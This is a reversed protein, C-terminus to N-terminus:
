IKEIYIDDLVVEQETSTIDFEIEKVVNGTINSRVNESFVYIRYHGKLLNQFVYTGDGQTRIRENYFDGYNYVIYIDQEQAATTDKVILNITTSENKYNILWVKGSVKAMGENWSLSKYMYLTDLEYTQNKDLNINVILEKKSATEYTLDDSYYYLKYNGPWLYQFQFNGTFSTKTDEGLNNQDGFLIFVDEDKAPQEYQFVTSDQNYFKEILVGKIHSNGGFGEDQTCSAAFVLLLAATCTLGFINSLRM